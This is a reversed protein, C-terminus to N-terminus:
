FSSFALPYSITFIATLVALQVRLIVCGALQQLTEFSVVRMHGSSYVLERALRLAARLVSGYFAM